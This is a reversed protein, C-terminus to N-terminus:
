VSELGDWCLYKVELFEDIGLHSGERGLGSQKVGGFPAVENSILGCNIGVMGSEIRAANRWIRAADRSFLYAALGFESDNAMAIAEDDRDFRLLPMVPGFIEERAIRMGHTVDALLTPQFFGGGLVHPKGGSLLRAGQALADDVLAQSKRLAADDILPGVQVGPELGNGVKLRAMREVIREALADYIGSQVLVRNAGICSQGGNRFKALMVGDAAADLDADDFVIFPANGGLEMSCKKVTQAAQALLLRGVDTSGTFTLKRVLPNATLEGAIDRTDNGTIVSFVGAPVGARQALEALALATLPTQSAPKVVMTCGAALAPAAKRTIMAAPFNWPTIAACVGIPERLVVIRQTDKVGPIMEGRVRTAEEGFWRVFSAAYDVEGRAEELPKGEELTILTAIDERHEVMLEYWRRLVEGRRKATLRRWPGFAEQAADIARRVETERCRPLEALVTQDVPNRLTYRGHPTETLWDGAIYAGTRWLTPDKLLHKM